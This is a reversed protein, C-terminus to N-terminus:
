RLKLAELIKSPTIPLDRIRVGIADYVANGIAPAIPLIPVEGVSRMGLYGAGKGSEFVVAEIAPTDASTALLYDMFSANLVQGNDVILEELLTTSLGMCAGGYVQGRVLEPNVAKGADIVVVLNLVKIFGTESDVAVDAMAAVPTYELSPAADVSCQDTKPESFLGTGTIMGVNNVFSGGIADESFLQKLSVRENTTSIIFEGGSFDLKNEPVGLREAAISLLKKKADRCARVVALGTQVIQRSGSSGPAVPTISTDSSVIRVNHLPIKFEEATIQALGTLTGQGADTAGVYLDVTADANVKLTAVSPLSVTLQHKAVAIGRGIKIQSDFPLSPKKRSFTLSKVIELCRDTTDDALKEGIVTTSGNVAINMLRFDVPDMELRRAIEDMQSEIAWFVQTTGFGRFAGGQLQNTYVRYIEAHFNPINYLSSVAYVANNVAVNGAVSYAGGNYVIRMVRGIIKGYRTVGDKISIKTAHRCTTASLEERRTLILKVPRGKTRLALAACIPEYVPAGRNGFGGGIHKPCVVRIRTEPMQLCDSLEKRTRFPTQGSTIVTLVGDPELKAIISTPEIHSHSVPATSYEGEVIIDAKEFASDPNGTRIIRYNSVNPLHSSGTTRYFKSSVRKYNELDPHVVSVPKEKISEDVDFVPKMEEYHVEILEVAELAEEYSTAAVAAVPEGIYRVVG